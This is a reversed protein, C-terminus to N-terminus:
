LHGMGPIDPIILMIHIQIRTPMRSTIRSITTITLSSLFHLPQNFPADRLSDADLQTGVALPTASRDPDNVRRLSVRVSTAQRRLIPAM